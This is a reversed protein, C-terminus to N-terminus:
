PKDKPDDESLDASRAVTVAGILAAILILSVVEFPLVFGGRAPSFLARGIEEVSASKVAEPANSPFPFSLLAGSLLLFLVGCAGWAVGKRWVSGQRFVKQTVDAMLMIVFVMLVLIGGIYVSVQVASLFQANILLYLGAIGLLAAILGVACRFLNRATVVFYASFLVFVAMLYFLTTNM